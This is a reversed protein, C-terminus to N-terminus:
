EYLSQAQRVVELARLKRFVQGAVHLVSEEGAKLGLLAEAFPTEDNLLGLRLNSSSDVIQVTHQERMGDLTEYTIRDGIDAFVEPADV